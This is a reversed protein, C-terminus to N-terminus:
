ALNFGIFFPLLQIFPVFRQETRFDVFFASFGTAYNISTGMAFEWNETMETFNGRFAM